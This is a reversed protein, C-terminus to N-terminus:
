TAAYQQMDFDWFSVQGATLTKITVDAFSYRKVQQPDISFCDYYDQRKFFRMGLPRTLDAVIDGSELWCHLQNMVRPGMCVVYPFYGSEDELKHLRDVHALCAGPQISMRALTSRLPISDRPPETPRPM